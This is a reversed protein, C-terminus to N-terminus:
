DIEVDSDIEKLVGFFVEVVKPDFHTDSLSRIHELV